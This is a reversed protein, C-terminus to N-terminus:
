CTTTPKLSKRPKSLPVLGSDTEPNMYESSPPAVNTSPPCNGDGPVSAMPVWLNGCTNPSGSTLYKPAHLKM